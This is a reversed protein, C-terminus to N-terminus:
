ESTNSTLLYSLRKGIEEGINNVGGINIDLIDGRKDIIMHTPYFDLELADMFSQANALVRYNMQNRELFQNVTGSLEYNLALFVVEEHYFVDVIKNLQEIERLCPGCKSNWFSFVLIKNEGISNDVLKGDTDRLSFDPLPKGKWKDVWERVYDLNSEAWASKWKESAGLEFVVEIQGTQLTDINWEFSNMRLLFRPMGSPLIQGSDDKVVLNPDSWNINKPVVKPQKAPPVMKVEKRGGRLDRELIGYNGQIHMKKAFAATIITGSNTKWIVNPNDWFEKGYTQADTLGSFILILIITFGTKKIFIEM